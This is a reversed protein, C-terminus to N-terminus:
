APSVHVQGRIQSNIYSSFLFYYRLREFNSERILNVCPGFQQFLKILFLVFGGGCCVFVVFCVGRVM